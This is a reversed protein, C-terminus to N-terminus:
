EEPLRLLELARARELQKAPKSGAPASKKPETRRASDKRAKAAPEDRGKGEKKREPESRSGSEGRRVEASAPKGAPPKPAPLLPGAKYRAVRGEVELMVGDISVKAGPGRLVWLDERKLVVGRERLVAVEPGVEISQALARIPPASEKVLVAGGSAVHTKQGLSNRSSRIRMGYLAVIGQRVPKGYVAELQGASAGLEWARPASCGVLVLASLGIWRRANMVAM